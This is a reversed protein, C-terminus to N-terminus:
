VFLGRGSNVEGLQTHGTVDRCQKERWRERNMLKGKREQLALGEKEGATQKRSLGAPRPFPSGPAPQNTQHSTSLSHRPGLGLRDGEEEERAREGREATAETGVASKEAKPLRHAEGACGGEILLEPKRSLVAGLGGCPRQVPQHRQGSGEEKGYGRSEKWPGESGHESAVRNYRPVRRDEEKRQWRKERQPKSHRTEKQM